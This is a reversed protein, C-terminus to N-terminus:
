FFCVLHTLWMKKNVFIMRVAPDNFVAHAQSPEILLKEKMRYLGLWMDVNTDSM